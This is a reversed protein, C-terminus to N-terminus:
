QAGMFVVSSNGPIFEMFSSLFQGSCIAMSLSALNRGWLIAHIQELTIHDVLPVSLGFGCRILIRGAIYFPINDTIFFHFNSPRRSRMSVIISRLVPSHRPLQTPWFRRAESTASISFIMANLLGNGCSSFFSLQELNAHLAPYIPTRVHYGFQSRVALYAWPYYWSPIM